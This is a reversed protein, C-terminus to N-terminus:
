RLRSLMGVQLNYLGLAWINYTKIEKCTARGVQVLGTIHSAARILSKRVEELNDTIEKILQAQTATDSM